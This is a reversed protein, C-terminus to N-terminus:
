AGQGIPERFTQAAYFGNLSALVEGDAVNIDMRKLNRVVCGIRDAERKAGIAGLHREDGIKAVHWFEYFNM